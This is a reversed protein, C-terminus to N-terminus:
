SAFDLTVPNLTRRVVQGLLTTGIIECGALSAGGDQRSKVARLMAAEADGLAEVTRCMRVRRGDTTRGNAIM